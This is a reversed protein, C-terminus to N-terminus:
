ESVEVSEITDHIELIEAVNLGATVEAFATYHQDLHLNPALNIYFQSSGTDKGATAMGVIGKGHSVQSLEERVFRDPGGYGSGSPDGGQAVFNSIVRHFSLGDYFGAEALTVFNLATLPADPLMTLEIVGQSTTLTVVKQTAAEAEVFSPSADLVVSNDPIDESRDEGTIAQWAEAAAVVVSKQMDQLAMELVPLGDAYQLRGILSVVEWRNGMQRPGTFSSYRELVDPMLDTLNLKELLALSLSVSESDLTDLAGLIIDRFPANEPLDPLEVAELLGNLGALAARRLEASEPAVAIDLLRQVRDESPQAGSIRLATLFLRHSTSDNLIEDLLPATMEPHKAQTLKVAEEAIWLSGDEWMSNLFTFSDTEDVILESASQLATLRVTGPYIDGTYHQVYELAGNFGQCKALASLAENRIETLESNASWQMYEACAQEGELNALVSMLYVRLWVTETAGGVAILRERDVLPTFEPNRLSRLLVRVAAIQAEPASDMETDIWTMTADLVAQPPFQGNWVIQNEWARLAALHVAAVSGNVLQNELEALAAETPFHGLAQVVAAQVPRRTENELHAILVEDAGAPAGIGISFAARRAVEEEPHSLLPELLALAGKGGIRGIARATQAMVDADGSQLAMEFLEVDFIRRNEADLVQDALLPEPNLAPTQEAQVALPTSLACAGAVGLLFKRTMLKM